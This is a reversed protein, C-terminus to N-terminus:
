LYYKHGLKEVSVCLDHLIYIKKKWQLKKTRNISVSPRKKDKVQKMRVSLQDQKKKENRIDAKININRKLM